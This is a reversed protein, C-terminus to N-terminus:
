MKIDDLGLDDLSAGANRREGRPRGIMLILGDYLRTRPVGAIKFMPWVYGPLRATGIRGVATLVRRDWNRAVACVSFVRRM